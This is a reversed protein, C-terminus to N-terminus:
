RHRYGPQKVHEGYGEVAALLLRALAESSLQAAAPLQCLANLADYTNYCPLVLLQLLAELTAADVHQQLYGLRLMYQLASPSLLLAAHQRTAATLLLKRAVDPELLAPMDAAAADATRPLCVFATDVTLPNSCNFALQLLNAGDEPPM